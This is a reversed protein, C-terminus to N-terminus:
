QLTKIDRSFGRGGAELRGDASLPTRDLSSAAAFPSALNPASPMSYCSCVFVHSIHSSSFRVFALM